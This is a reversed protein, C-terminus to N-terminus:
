WLTIRVYKYDLLTEGSITEFGVYQPTEESKECVIGEALSNARGKVSRTYVLGSHEM